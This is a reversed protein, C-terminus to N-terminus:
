GRALSLTSAKAKCLAGDRDNTLLPLYFKLNEEQAVRRVAGTSVRPSGEIRQKRM